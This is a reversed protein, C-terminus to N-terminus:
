VFGGITVQYRGVFERCHELEAGPAGEYEMRLVSCSRPPESLCEVDPGKAGRRGSCAVSVGSLAAVAVVSVVSSILGMCVVFAKEGAKGIDRKVM